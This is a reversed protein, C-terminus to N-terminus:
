ACSHIPKVVIHITGDPAEKTYVAFEKHPLKKTYEYVADVVTEYLHITLNKTPVEIKDELFDSVVLANKGCIAAQNNQTFHQLLELGFIKKDAFM